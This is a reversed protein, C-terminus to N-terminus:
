QDTATELRGQRTVRFRTGRWEVRNGLFALGWWAAQLLDKVPALWLWKWHVLSQCLRRQNDLATLFRVLLCVGLIQAALPTRAVAWLLLPWLTPNSVISAAYALPQCARITRAWRLQHKWVHRWGEPANLCDVVVPCLMVRAGTAAVRRGLEYDDALYDTLVRLGGMQRVTERRVAMTAGLAFRLPSLRRAQLVSTWFDSNVALAECHMAVTTPEGLRYFPNVLGVTQEQFAAALNTLLDPPAKVDADSIVLLDHQALPELQALKSAKANPGVREGCVVLRAELEPHRALLRQVVTCVPDDASSVAFLVQVPGAYNQTLWSRLCAETAADSGKLPKLLTLGPAYDRGRVRRHLPFLRGELWQWLMLLLSIGTLLAPPLWIM